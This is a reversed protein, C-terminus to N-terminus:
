WIAQEKVKRDESAEVKAVDSNMNGSFKQGVKVVYIKALLTECHDVALLSILPTISDLSCPIFITYIVSGECFGTPAM